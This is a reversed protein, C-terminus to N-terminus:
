IISLEKAKSLGVSAIALKNYMEEGEREEFIGILFDNSKNWQKFPSNEDGIETNLKFCLRSYIDWQYEILEVWEEDSKGIMASALREYIPELAGFVDNDIDVDWEPPAWRDDNEKYTTNYGFCPPSIVTYDCYFLWFGCVYLEKASVRVAKIAEVVVSEVEAFIEEIQKDM